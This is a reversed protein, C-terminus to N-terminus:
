PSILQTKFDLSYKLQMILEIEAFMCRVDYIQKNDCQIFLQAYDNTFKANYQM